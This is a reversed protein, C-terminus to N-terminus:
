TVGKRPPTKDVDRPSPFYTKSLKLLWEFVPSRGVVIDGSSFYDGDGQFNAIKCGAENAILAGAAIDWPSLDLEWFGDFTGLATYCLDITVAGPRRVNACEAMVEKFLKLYPEHYARARFPFGTCLLAESIPKSSNNPSILRNKHYAGYSKIAFFLDDFLPFNILGVIIEGWKDKLNTRRELAISIAWIPFGRIFNTTGDLPDIIWCFNRLQSNGELYGKEETLIDFDPTEKKLIDIITEEAARDASSVWDNISKNSIEIDKLNGFYQMLIKGACNAANEAINKYEFLEKM